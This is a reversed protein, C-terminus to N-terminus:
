FKVNSNRGFPLLYLLVKYQSTNPLRPHAKLQRLERGTVVGLLGFGGFQPDGLVGGEFYPWVTASLGITHVSTLYSHPPSIEFPVM